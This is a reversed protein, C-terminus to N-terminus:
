YRNSLTLTQTDLVQKTVETGWNLNVKIRDTTRHKNFQDYLGRYSHDVTAANCVRMYNLHLSEM